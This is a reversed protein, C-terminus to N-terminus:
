AKPLTPESHVEKSEPKSADSGMQLINIFAIM